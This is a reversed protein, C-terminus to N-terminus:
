PKRSMTVSLIDRAMNECIRSRSYKSIFGARPEDAIKLGALAHVADVADCPRFVAANTVESRVFQASYGPIGAWIPKGLAAYEFIKSPLVKTFAEYNNLHLFLVDAQKYADILRARPMPSLLEVNTIGHRTLGACLADKRGGDGIVTFQIEGVTLRALEPLINHLGQGEGINGAYLVKLPRHKAEMSRSTSAAALFEDDIGNTFYTFRQGPYRHEFYGAFGASVLNVSDARKIAWHEFISFIFKAIRAVRQPLVDKITDVFIDRIDLYLRARKGSAIAAGLVATMLRSSTAFVADYHESRVLHWAQWAFTLFAKSQDMMGSKHSPLAIRHITLKGDREIQPADQSFSNYRNPLTTVVDIM